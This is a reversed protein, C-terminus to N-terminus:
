PQSTLQHFLEPLMYDAYDAAPRRKYLCIYRKKGPPIVMSAALVPMETRKGSSLLSSPTQIQHGDAQFAKTGPPLILQTIRLAGSQGHYITVQTGEISFVNDKCAAPSLHSQTGKGDFSGAAIALHLSDSTDTNTIEILEGKTSSLRVSRLRLHYKGMEPARPALWHGKGEHLVGLLLLGSGDEMSSIAIPAEQARLTPQLFLLFGALLFFLTQKM